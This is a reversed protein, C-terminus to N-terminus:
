FLYRGSGTPKSLFLSGNGMIQMEKTWLDIKLTDRTEDDFLSLLMAKCHKPKGDPNDSAEWVINAPVSQEDLEITIKIESKKSM